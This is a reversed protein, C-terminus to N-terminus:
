VSKLECSLSHIKSGREWIIRGKEKRNTVAPSFLGCFMKIGKSKGRSSTFMFIPFSLPLGKIHPVVDDQEGLTKWLRMSVHRWWCLPAHPVQPGSQMSCGRKSRTGEVPSPFATNPRQKTPNTVQFPPPNRSSDLSLLGLEREANLLMQRKVHLPWQQLKFVPRRRGSLKIHPQKTWCKWSSFYLEKVGYSVTRSWIYM